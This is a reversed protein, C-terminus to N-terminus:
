KKVKIQQQTAPNLNGTNDTVEVYDTNNKKVKKKCGLKNRIDQYTTPNELQEKTVQTKQGDLTITRSLIFKLVKDMNKNNDESKNTIKFLKHWKSLLRCFDDKKLRADDYKSMGEKPVNDGKNDGKHFNNAGGKKVPGPTGDPYARFWAELYARLDNINPYPKIIWTIVMFVGLAFIVAGILTVIAAGVVGTAAFATSIAAGAGAAAGAVAAGAATTGAAAILPGIVVMVSVSFIGAFIAMNVIISVLSNIKAEKIGMHFLLRKLFGYAGTKISEETLQTGKEYKEGPKVQKKPDDVKIEETTTELILGMSKNTYTLNETLSTKMDQSSVAGLITSSINGMQNLDAKGAMSKDSKTWAMIQTYATKVQFKNNEDVWKLEIFPLRLCEAAQAIKNFVAKKVAAFGKKAYDWLKQISFNKIANKIHNFIQQIANKFSSVANNVIKKGKDYAQGVVEKGKNYAQGVVEKGKNYTQGVKNKVSNFTDKLWAEYLVDTFIQEFFLDEFIEVFDTSLYKQTSLVDGEFLTNVINEGNTITRDYIASNFNKIYM